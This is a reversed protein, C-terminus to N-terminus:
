IVTWRGLVVFGDRLAIDVTDGDELHRTTHNGGRNLQLIPDGNIIVVPEIPSDEQVVIEVRNDTYQVTDIPDDPGAPEASQYTYVVGYGVTCLSLVLLMLAVGGFIRGWPQPIEEDGDAGM